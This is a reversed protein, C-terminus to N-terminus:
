AKEDLLFDFDVVNVTPTGFYKGHQKCVLIHPSLWMEVTSRSKVNSAM